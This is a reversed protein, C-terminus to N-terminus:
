GRKGFTPSKHFRQQVASTEGIHQVVNPNLAFLKTPSYCIFDKVMMDDPGLEGDRERKKMRERLQARVLPTLYLGQNGYFRFQNYHGLPKQKFRYNAYLAIVTLEGHKRIAQEAVEETTWLWNDAFDLDDQLAILPGSGGELVRMFNLATRYQASKTLAHKHEARSMPEARIGMRGVWPELYACSDGCVVLRVRRDACQADKAFMSELTGHVYQPDRDCTSIAIEAQM